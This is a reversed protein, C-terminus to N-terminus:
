DRTGSFCDSIGSVLFAILFGGALGGVHAGNDIGVSTMGQLVSLVAMFVLRRGSLEKLQGKNRIVLYILAGIVAFVAGSAGASVAYEEQKMDLFVSLINGAMGGGLYIVLYKVKGVTKELTDGLFILVLMNYFLHDLGFHLFMSTVLRYYEHNEAVYPAFAAGHELMFGANETDGAFSLIIFVAVNICVIILNVPQRSRIFSTLEEM